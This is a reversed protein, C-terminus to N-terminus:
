HVPQLAPLLHEQGQRRTLWSLLTQAITGSHYTNESDYARDAPNAKYVPINHEGCYQRLWLGYAKQLSEPLQHDLTHILVYQRITLWAQSMMALDAKTEAASALQLASIAQQQSAIISAQEELRQQQSTQHAAELAVLRREQSRYAEAMQVLLDGQSTPLSRPDKAARECALFYLRAEKGKANKEVMSLEKAMDLSLYYEIPPNPNGSSLDSYCTFDVDQVFGYGDIRRTIWDNFRAKIQLFAHLHRADVTPIGQAQGLTSQHIPILDHIDPM